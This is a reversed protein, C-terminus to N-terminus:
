LWRGSRSVGRGAGGEAGGTGGYRGFPEGQVSPNARESDCANAGDFAIRLLIRSPFPATRLRVTLQLRRSSEEAETMAFPLRRSSESSFHENVNLKKIAIPSLHRM